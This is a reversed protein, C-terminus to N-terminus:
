KMQSHCVVPIGRRRLQVKHRSFAPCFISCLFLTRLMFCCPRFYNSGSCGFEMTSLL